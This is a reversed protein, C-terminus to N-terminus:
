YEDSRTGDFLDGVSGQTIGLMLIYPEMLPNTFRYRYNRRAGTRKLVCGRREECFEKLHRSFASIESRRNLIRSLPEVVEAAQFTSMQDKKAMACAILVESFLADKRASTTAKHYLSKVSQQANNVAKNLSARVDVRQVKKSYRYLAARVSELGVLHTFHPLGQSLGVIKDAALESFNVGLESAGSNLIQHLEDTSMRPMHVQVLARDISAHDALLQDVTDAVGVLIVTAGVSYDSLSKILDTFTFAVDPPLRDFEDFVLVVNSGVGGLLRRVDNPTADGPLKSGLTDVSKDAEGVLGVTPKVKTLLIEDLVKHWASNFSDTIDCNTKAAILTSGSLIDVYPGVINALSTKGVGREGYLVVHQGTQNIAETTARLQSLRGAFFEVATIPSAPRFFQGAQYSLFEFQQDPNQTTESPTDDTM